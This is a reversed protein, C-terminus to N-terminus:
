RRKKNAITKGHDVNGKGNYGSGKFNNVGSHDQLSEETAQTTSRVKKAKRSM